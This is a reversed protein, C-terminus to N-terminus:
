LIKNKLTIPKPLHGDKNCVNLQILTCKLIVNKSPEEGCTYQPKPNTAVHRTPDLM